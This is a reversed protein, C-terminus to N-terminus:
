IMGLLALGNLFTTLFGVLLLLFVPTYYLVFNTPKIAGGYATISALIFVAVAKLLILGKLGTLTFVQKVIPNAEEFFPSKIILYTTYTDGIVYLLVAVVWLFLFFKSQKRLVRSEM